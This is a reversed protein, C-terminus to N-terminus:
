RHPGTSPVYIENWLARSDCHLWRISGARSQCQRVHRSRVPRTARLPRALGGLSVLTINTIIVVDQNRQGKMSNIRRKCGGEECAALGYLCGSPGKRKGRRKAVMENAM